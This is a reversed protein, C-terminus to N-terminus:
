KSSSGFKFAKERKIGIDIRGFRNAFTNLIAAKDAQKQVELAHKDEYQKVKFEWRAKAAAAEAAEIKRLQTNIEDILVNAEAQCQAVPNVKALIDLAKAACDYDRKVLWASRADQILQKGEQEIQINFIDMAKNQCTASGGRCQKCISTDSCYVTYEGTYSDWNSKKTIADWQAKTGEFYITIEEGSGFKPGSTFANKQIKVGNPVVISHVGDYSSFANQNIQKIPIGNVSAPIEVLAQGNPDSYGGVEYYNIIGDADSDVPILNVDGKFLYVPYITVDKTYGAFSNKNYTDKSTVKGDNDTLHVELYDFEL